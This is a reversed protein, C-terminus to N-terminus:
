KICWPFLVRVLSGRGVKWIVKLYMFILQSDMVLLAILLHRYFHSMTEISLLVNYIVKVTKSQSVALECATLCSTIGGMWKVIM